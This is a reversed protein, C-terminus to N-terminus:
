YDKVIVSMINTVYLRQWWDSPHNINNAFVDVGKKVKLIEKSCTTMDVVATATYLDALEQLVPLYAAQSADQPSMPNAMITSVLVIDCNPNIARVNDVIYETAQQFLDADVRYSGDNMGFAIILMDPVVNKFKNDFEDRGQQTALWGGVSLNTFNVTGGFQSELEAKVGMGFPVQGSKIGFGYSSHCGAAISDGYLVLNMTGETKLKNISYEVAEPQATQKATWEGEYEYTVLTQMKMISATETFVIKEGTAKANYPEFSLGALRSDDLNKAELNDETFYPMTSSATAIITNGEVTYETDAYTKTKTWDTVSIIKTPAFLLKGTIRGDDGLVMVVSEDRMLKEKWFPKYADTKCLMKVEEEANGEGGGSPEKGQESGGQNGVNGGGGTDGCGVFAFLSLAVCLLAILIKKVTKKM